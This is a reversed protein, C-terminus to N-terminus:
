LSLSRKHENTLGLLQLHVLKFPFVFCKKLKSILELKKNTNTKTLNSNILYVTKLGFPTKRLTGCLDFEATLIKKNVATWPSTGSSGLCMHLGYGAHWALLWLHCQPLWWQQLQMLTQKRCRLTLPGRECTPLWCGSTATAKVKKILHDVLLPDSFSWLIM